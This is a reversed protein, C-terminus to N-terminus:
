PKSADVMTSLKIPDSRLERSAEFVKRLLPLLSDPVSSVVIKQGGVLSLTLETSDPVLQIKQFGNDPQDGTPEVSRSWEMDAILLEYFSSQQSM